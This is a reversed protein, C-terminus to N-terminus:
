QFSRYLSMLESVIEEELINKSFGYAECVAADNDRHAKLLEEPMTLPDYLNALSSDPFRERVDLIKKATSEIKARQKENVSPWM